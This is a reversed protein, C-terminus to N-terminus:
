RAALDRRLQELEIRIRDVRDLVTLLRPGPPAGEPFNDPVHPIDSALQADRFYIGNSKLWAHGIHFMARKLQRSNM